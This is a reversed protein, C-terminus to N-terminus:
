EKFNFRLGALKLENRYNEVSERTVTTRKRGIQSRREGRAFLFHFVLADGLFVPLLFPFKNLFLQIKSSM